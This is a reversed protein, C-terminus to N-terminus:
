ATTRRDEQVQEYGAFIQVAYDYETKCIVVTEGTTTRLGYCTKTGAAEQRREHEEQERATARFYAASSMDKIRNEEWSMPTYGLGFVADNIFERRSGVRWTNKSDLFRVMQSLIANQRTM